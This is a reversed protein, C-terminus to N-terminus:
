ADDSGFRPRAVAGPGRPAGGLAHVAAASMAEVSPEQGTWVRFSAAAQHVLMGLGGWADAGAARAREVLPTAPPDYVLDVVVQGPRFAAGPAPDTGDGGLPTANVVLDAGSAATSAASWELARGAAGAVRAVALARGPDRAAVAVEAAGADALAKVVARAAGGAGLVIARRGRADAGADAALVARFGDVDTNHGIAGDATFAITNVAGVAAADPSLADLHAGVREKHPMTVNAGLAGLASLGAVAAGLDDPPVPWALYVCDIAARRFAANHITPSLTHALPWGLVGAFSPGPRPTLM